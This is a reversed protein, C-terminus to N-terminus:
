NRKNKLVAAIALAAAHGSSFTFQLNYGGTDGDVDLVEGAFYLGPYRKSEMTSTKIESLLIGGATSMALHYGGLREVIFTDTTLLDALRGLEIGTCQSFKRTPDIEARKCLMELFRKPLPLISSLTSVTQRHDGQQAQILRKRLSVPEQAALYNLQFSVGPQLFRSANLVLPGSLNTHTFLMQGMWHRPKQKRKPDGPLTFKVQDLAIGSLAAFPYEKVHVPTLSPQPRRFQIGLKKLIEFFNGDSGTVPYSCGGSAVLVQKAQYSGQATIVAFSEASKEWTLDIVSDTQFAFGNRKASHSLTDAIEAAALSCPFVKGDERELLEVGLDEMCEMVAQNSHRYLISRISPGQDGYHSLFDKIEGGHTLNCQGAGTLLLKRGPKPNRDLILGQVSVPFSAAAYLGAAGGGIIIVDYIM